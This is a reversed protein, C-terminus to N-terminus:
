KTVHAGLTEGVWFVGLGSVGLSSFVCLFAAAHWFTSAKSKGTNGESKCVYPDKELLTDNLRTRYDIFNVIYALVASFISFGVGGAFCYLPLVLDGILNPRGGTSHLAGMLTVLSVVAGGNILILSRIGLNASSWAAHSFALREQASLDYQRKAIEERLRQRLEIEFQEDQSM